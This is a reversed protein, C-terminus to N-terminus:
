RCVADMVRFFNGGWIKRLEEGSHGRELLEMTINIMENDSNCGLLGGGGDFDSGVGVYDIGAVEIIHEIHDVVDLVSAKKRDNNTFSDLVCVQIVGGKAAIAKIMEDSVNRRHSCIARTSSHSCIVPDESIELVDFVTQDDAHSLDIMMGVRNMEKVVERGFETLGSGGDANEGSSHCIINEHSHCLTIYRVGRNYFREINSLDNGIGYGNEIGIFFAKRGEAKLQRAEASSTVIGCAEPYKAVDAYILDILADAKAVASKLSAADNSGQALWAALSQSDLHGQQMKRLSVQAGPIPKGLSSGRKFDLPTDTHTDVSLISEHIAKAKHFTAAKATFHRFLKISASDSMTQEPHYQVAMVPHYPYAEIAEVIGDSSWGVARFGPALNRIGQHHSSYASDVQAGMLSAYVSGEQTKVPHRPARDGSKLRRHQVSHDAYESPIDQYLSGGFAVNILQLGRCIGLTPLNFEWALRALALEHEDRLEDIDEALPSLKTNYHKPDIDDGGTLLLGDLEAVLKYMMDKDASRPLVVPIGGSAVIAEMYTNSAATSGDARTASIGILPRIDTLAEYSTEVAADPFPVPEPQSVTKSRCSSFLAMAGILLPISWNKRM